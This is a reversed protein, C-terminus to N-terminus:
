PLYALALKNRLMSLHGNWAATHKFHLEGTSWRKQSQQKPSISLQEKVDM